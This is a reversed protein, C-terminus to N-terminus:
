FKADLSVGIRRFSDPGFVQFHANTDGFLGLSSRYLAVRQDTLNRVFVSIGYLGDDFKLGVRADVVLYNGVTSGPDFAASFTIPSTYTADVQVFGDMRTTVPREYQGSLSVKWRPTFTAQKGTASQTGTTPDCGQAAGQTPGCLTIYGPGYYADIYAVGGNVTLGKLPQGFASLEVGRTKISPVNTFVNTEHVVDFSNTQFNSVDTDFLALSVAMRDHFLSAKAGVEIQKPIEPKVLLPTTASVPAENFAPGKYGRTYTAYLMVKPIVDYQIGFRYSLNTDTYRANIAPTASLLFDAGPPLLSGTNVDAIQERDLRAGATFRLTDTAHFTGQFFAAYSKNHVEIYQEAGVKLGFALLAPTFSGVLDNHHNNSTQAYYLGAVYEFRDGAPSTVRLEQSFSNVRYAIYDVDALDVQIGDVDGGQFAHQWRNATISTLTYRGLEYDVQASVGYTKINANGPADNCVTSNTLTAAAGCAALNEAVIGGPTAASYSFFNYGVYTTHDYDGIINVTLDSTPRWLIRVRGGASRSSSHLGTLGNTYTTPTKNMYETVRMAATDGLPINEVAQFVQNDRTAIDAHAIGEFRGIDPTNSVLNLIGASSNRGFLTGQPGELLEVRSLDFLSTAGLPSITNGLAVGDVVVGVSAESSVAYGFTGVGRVFLGGGPFPDNGLAPLAKILDDTSRIGQAALQAASIATVSMPVKLLREERKNATVVVETVGTAASQESASAAVPAAQAAVALALWSGACSLCVLGRNM